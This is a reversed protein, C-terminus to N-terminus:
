VVQVFYDLGSGFGNFLGCLQVLAFHFSVLLLESLVQHLLERHAFDELFQLWFLIGIYIFFRHVEQLLFAVRAKRFVCNGFVTLLMELVSEGAENALVDSNLFLWYGALVAFSEEASRAQVLPRFLVRITRRASSFEVRLVLSSMLQLVCAHLLELKFTRVTVELSIPFNHPSMKCSFAFMSVVM